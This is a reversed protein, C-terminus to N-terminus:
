SAGVVNSELICPIRQAPRATHAEKKKVEWLFMSALTPAMDVV